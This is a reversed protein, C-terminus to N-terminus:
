FSPAKKFFFDDLRNPIIKWFEQEYKIPSLYGISSHRRITNYHGEIYEFTLYYADDLGNFVGGDLLEAKFRSFLSEAHVNDYHNDRRTMSQQYGHLKLLKRFEISGYQGGGDSHAISGKKPQRIKIVKHMAKIVLSEEMHLDVHWGVIRRSYLDMWIALYLWKDGGIEGNPLYTIDGVVVQNPGTPLNDSLLLLNPSRRLHPHSQTTKPVFSKLEIAVLNQEVMRSRIQHRGIHLGESALEVQIRRWGYRSKHADFVRKVAEGIRSKEGKLIYSKENIYSYYASRSVNLIRCLHVLDFEVRLEEIVDYIETL